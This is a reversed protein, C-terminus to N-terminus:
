GESVAVKPFEILVDLSGGVFRNLSVFGGYFAEVSDLEIFPDGDLWKNLIDDPGAPRTEHIIGGDQARIKAYGKSSREPERSPDCLSRGSLARHWLWNSM